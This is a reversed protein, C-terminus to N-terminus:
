KCVCVSESCVKEATQHSKPDKCVVIQIKNDKLHWTVWWSTYKFHTLLCMLRDIHNTKTSKVCM